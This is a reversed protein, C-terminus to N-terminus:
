YKLFNLSQIIYWEPIQKRKISVATWTKSSIINTLFRGYLNSLYWEVRRRLDTVTPMTDQPLIPSPLSNMFVPVGDETSPSTVQDVWEHNENGLKRNINWKLSGKWLSIDEWWSHHLVAHRNLSMAKIEGCLAEKIGKEWICGTTSLGRLM